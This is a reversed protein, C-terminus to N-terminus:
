GYDNFDLRVKLMKDKHAKLREEQEKKIKKYQIKRRIKDIPGLSKPPLHALAAEETDFKDAYSPISWWYNDSVQYYGGGLYRRYIYWYFGIRIVKPKKAYYELVKITGCIIGGLITFFILVFGFPLVFEKIFEIVTM